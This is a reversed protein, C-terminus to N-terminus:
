KAHAFPAIALVLSFLVFDDLAGVGFVLLGVISLAVAATVSVAITLKKTKADIKPM